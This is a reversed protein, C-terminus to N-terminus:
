QLWCREVKQVEGAWIATQAFAEANDRQEFTFEQVTGDYGHLKIVYFTQKM